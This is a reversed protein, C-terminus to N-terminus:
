TKPSPFAQDIHDVADAVAQLGGPPVPLREASLIRQADAAVGPHGAVVASLFREDADGPGTSAARASWVGRGHRRRLGAALRRAVLRTAGIREYARALADVHELPSRREIRPVDKPPIARVGLAFILVLAAALIQAIGRGAISGFLFQQIVRPTSPQRGYGQDYEDFVLTRRRGGSVWDLSQMVRPGIDWKCIRVVDNRLLDADSYVVVRGRGLTFGFAAPETPLSRAGRVPRDVTIFVPMASTVARHADLRYLHVGDRFWELMNDVNDPKCHPRMEQPMPTPAYGTDARNVQLSDELTGSDSVIYMLGAGGRVAELLAHTSTATVPILPALVAYVAATDLDGTLPTVRRKPRWGLFKAIDYIGSAGGPGSSYTTVRRDPVVPASEPTLLVAFVLLVTLVPLAIRPRLAM